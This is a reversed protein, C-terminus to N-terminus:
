DTSQQGEGSDDDDGSEEKQENARGAFELQLEMQNLQEKRKLDAEENPDKISPIHRLISELSMFPAILPLAKWIEMEDVPINLDFKVEYDELVPMQLVSWVRNILNIRSRLGMEFYKTFIGAQEIQPQLKLKLAIGSARGTSGVITHIDAVRAMMHIDSRTVKMDFEVKQPANGRDLFKVVADERNTTIIKDERMKQIYSKGDNDLQYLANPSYGNIWLLSDVNFIVDDANSSRVSNWIDQQSIIDEGIFSRDDSSVSFVVIPMQGYKHETIEINSPQAFRHEPSEIMFSVIKRDDYVTYHDIPEQTIRGRFLTGEEIEVKLIAGQMVGDQDYVFAWGQPGYIDIGINEGDFSHVEVSFGELVCNLYHEMDLASIGSDRVMKMFERLATQDADVKSLTYKVPNTMCFGVHSDVIYKIWNTIVKNKTEGDTKRTGAEELIAQIGNYYDVRGKQVNRRDQKSDWLKIVEDVTLDIGM